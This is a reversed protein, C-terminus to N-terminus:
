LRTLSGSHLFRFTIPENASSIINRQFERFFATVLKGTFTFQKVALLAAQMSLTDARLTKGLIMQQPPFANDDSIKQFKQV